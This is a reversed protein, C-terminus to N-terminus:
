VQPMSTGFTEKCRPETIGLISKINVGSQKNSRHHVVNSSTHPLRPFWVMMACRTFGMMGAISHCPDVRWM